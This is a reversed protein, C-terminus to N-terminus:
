KTQKNMKNTNQKEWSLTESHLEPQGFVGEPSWAPWLNVSIQKGLTPVLSM